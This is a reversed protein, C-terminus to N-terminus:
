VYLVDESPIKQSCKIRKTVAHYCDDDEEDLDHDM